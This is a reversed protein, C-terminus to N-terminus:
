FVRHNDEDVHSVVGRLAGTRLFPYRRGRGRRGAFLHTLLPVHKTTWTGVYRCVGSGTWWYTLNPVHKRM